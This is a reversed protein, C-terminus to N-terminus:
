SGIMAVLKEKIVSFNMMDVNERLWKALGGDSEYEYNEIEEMAADAEDMNYQECAALLESLTQGDPKDKKPRSNEAETKDLLDDRFNETRFIETIDNVLKGATEILDANNAIVFDIDGQRAAKELAEAKTGVVEACIARSCGKIGHVNVAYDALNDKKVNKISDLIPPTNVAYSRLINLFTGTDRNFLEFGKQVDVGDLRLPIEGVPFEREPFEQTTEKPQEVINDSIKEEHDKDKVWQRIVNDLHSM